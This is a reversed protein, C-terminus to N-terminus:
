GTIVSSSLLPLLLCQLIQMLLTGPFMFYNIERATMNYSRLALGLGTGASLIAYIFLARCRDTLSTKPTWVIMSNKLFEVKKM